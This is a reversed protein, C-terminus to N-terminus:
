LLNAHLLNKKGANRNEGKGARGHDIGLVTRPKLVVHSHVGLVPRSKGVGPDRGHFGAQLEGGLLFLKPRRELGGYPIERLQSDVAGIRPHIRLLIIRPIRLLRVIRDGAQALAGIGHRCGRRVQLLDRIGGIREVLRKVIALLPPEPNEGMHLVTEAIATPPVTFELTVAVAFAAVPTVVPIVAIVPVAALAAVMAAPPVGLPKSRATRQDISIESFGGSVPPKKAAPAAGFRGPFIAYAQQVDPFRKALRRGRAFAKRPRNGPAYSLQYLLHSKIM